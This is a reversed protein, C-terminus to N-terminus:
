SKLFLKNKLTILSKKLKNKLIGIILVRGLAMLRAEARMGIGEGNFCMQSLECVDCNGNARLSVNGKSNVDM